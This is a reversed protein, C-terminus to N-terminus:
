KIEEEYDNEESAITFGLGLTIIDDIRKIVIIDTTNVVRSALPVEDLMYNVGTSDIKAHQDGFAKILAEDYEKIDRSPSYLARADNNFGKHDRIREAVKIDDDTISPLSQLFEVLKPDFRKLLNSTEDVVKNKLRYQYYAEPLGARNWHKNGTHIMNCSGNSTFYGEFPGDYETVVYDVNPLQLGYFPQKIITENKLGISDGLVIISADEPIVIMQHHHSITRNPERVVYDVNSDDFHVLAIDSDPLHELLYKYDDQSTSIVLTSKPVNNSIIAVLLDEYSMGSSYLAEHENGVFVFDKFIRKFINPLDSGFKISYNRIM